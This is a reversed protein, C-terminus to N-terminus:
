IEVWEYATKDKLLAMLLQNNLAHGSKHGRFAGVIQGAVYLDGIADLLKHKVFEDPYRLGEPNLVKDEAIGVANQLSAGLALHQQHLKDLDNANGFTRARCIEKDYAPTSFDFLIEQATAKIVPQPFDITLHLRYGEYPSFEAYKDGQEVRVTKKVKLAHRKESQEQIGAAELLFVFPASSGDMVPIEGANLDIYVNDIAHACLASLIHEITGISVTGKVLKTCLVTEQVRDPVATIEVVPDLDVRRFVIGTNVPAPHLTMKVESGSHLGIGVASVSNKITTQFAMQNNIVKISNSFREGRM